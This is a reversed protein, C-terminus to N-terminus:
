TRVPSATVASWPVTLSVADGKLALNAGIRQAPSFRLKRNDFRDRLTTM